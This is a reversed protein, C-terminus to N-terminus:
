RALRARVARWYAHHDRAPETALRRDVHDAFDRPFFAKSVEEWWAMGFPNALYWQVYLDVSGKWDAETYLGEQALQYDRFVMNLSPYLYADMAIFDAHTMEGPTAVSKAIVDITHAGNMNAWMQNMAVNGENIYAKRALETNQRMQLLVLVLGALVGVNAGLTLWHPLRDLRRRAREALAPTTASPTPTRENTQMPELYWIRELTGVGPAVREQRRSSAQM